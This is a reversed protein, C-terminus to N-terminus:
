FSVMFYVQILVIQNMKIKITCKVHMEAYQIGILLFYKM